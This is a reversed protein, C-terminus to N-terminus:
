HWNTFRQVLDEVMEPEVPNAKGNWEALWGYVLLEADVRTM